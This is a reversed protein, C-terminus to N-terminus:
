TGHRNRIELKCRVRNTNARYTINKYTIHKERSVATRINMAVNQAIIRRVFSRERKDGTLLLNHLFRVFQCRDGLKFCTTM